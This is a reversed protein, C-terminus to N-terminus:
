QTPPKPQQNDQLPCCLGPHETIKLKLEEATRYAERSPVAIRDIGSLIAYHDLLQRYRGGPRVCSLSIPVDITTRATTVIKIINEIAPPNRERLPTDPTPIFVVIVITIPNYKRAIELAHLESEPGKESLGVIIHPATPINEDNLYRLTNEIDECTKELGLIERITKDDGIVDVLATDLFHLERAQERTIMGVHASILLSTNEKIKWIDRKHQYLPVYGERTSGGSLIIGTTGRNHLEEGVRTLNQSADIMHKLYHANCHKCSLECREGTLSLPTFPQPYFHIVDEFLEIRRTFSELMADKLSNSVLTLRSIEEAAIREERTITTM